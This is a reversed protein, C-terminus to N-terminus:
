LAAESRSEATPVRRSVLAGGDTEDEDEDSECGAGRDAGFRRSSAELESAKRKWSSYTLTKM